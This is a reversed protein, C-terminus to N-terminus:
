IPTLEVAALIGGFNWVMYRTDDTSKRWLGWFGSPIQGVTPPLPQNFTGAYAGSGGGVQLFWAVGNWVATGPTGGGTDLVVRDDGVSNGAPPLDGVTAVPERWTNAGVMDSLPIKGPGVGVPLEDIGHIHPFVQRDAM